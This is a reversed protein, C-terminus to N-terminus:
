KDGSKKGGVTVVVENSPVSTGCNTTTRVRVYYTGAPATVTVSTAYAKMWAADDRGPATGVEVSYHVVGAVPQWSLSVSTGSVRATLSAPAPAICAQGEARLATVGRGAPVLFLVGVFAAFVAAKAVRVGLM